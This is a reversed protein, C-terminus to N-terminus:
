QKEDTGKNKDEAKDEPEEINIDYDDEIELAANLKKKRHRKFLVGGVIAVVLVIGSIILAWPTQKEPMQEEAYEDEWVPMDMVQFTFPVELFQQEGNADEFTFTVKGNMEGVDRPIFTFRYSDSKGSEMNGAYYSNSEMLDFAGECNVRLNNLTSKGMNYFELECSGPEGAYVETPPVIDDVVLRTKQTVPIAITDSSELPDGSGTEYTMNVTIPTTKQEAQAKTSLRISKTYHGKAKINEVFFSNSGGVPVFVGDENSLSVKVNSLTKGSTNLIGLNLIFDTGAQVASGGYSYNDIMLQPKKVSTGDSLISVTAYQVVNAVSEESSNAPTATIKIPYTKEEAGDFTYLKVSYQKSSKKPINDIFINKSKNIIGEEPDVTVKLNKLDSGGTNQVTFNLNFEKGSEMEKPINVNTITINDTNLSGDGQVPIYFTKKAVIDGNMFNLGLIQVEIPYNKSEIGQKVTIPFEVSKRKGMSVYGLEAQNSGNYISLGEPLVLSVVANKITTNGYNYFEVKLKNNDGQTFGGAPEISHSIDVAAVTKSDTGDTSLREYVTFYTNEELTKQNALDEGGSDKLNATFKCIREGTGAHKGLDVSFSVTQKGGSPILLSGTNEKITVGDGQISLKMNQVIVTEGRNNEINFGVSINEDGQMGGPSGITEISVGGNNAAYVFSDSEGMPMFAPVLSYMLVVLAVMMLGLFRKLIVEKSRM